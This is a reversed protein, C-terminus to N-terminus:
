RGWTPGRPSPVPGPVRAIPAPEARRWGRSNTIVGSAGAACHATKPVAKSVISFRAFDGRFVLVPSTDARPVDQRPDSSLSGDRRSFNERLRPIKGRNTRSQRAQKGKSEMMGCREKEEREKRGLAERRWKKRSLRHDPARSTAPSAPHLEGPPLPVMPPDVVALVEFEVVEVALVTSVPSSITMPCKPERVPEAAVKPLDVSLPM